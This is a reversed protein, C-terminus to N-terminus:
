AVTPRLAYSTFTIEAMSPDGESLKARLVVYPFTLTQDAEGVMTGDVSVTLTGTEVDSYNALTSALGTAYRSAFRVGLDLAPAYTPTGALDAINRLYVSFSGTMPQDNGKRISPRGNSDAMVGRDLFLEVTELPFDVKFDGPEYAFAVSYTGNTWTINTDRKTRVVTSEFAM